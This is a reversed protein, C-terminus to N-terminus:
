RVHEQEGTGREKAAAREARLQDLEARLRTLESSGAGTGTGGRNGMSRDDCRNGGSMARMMLVMSLPCAALLLLPLAAALVDPAFVVVGLGAVALAALVKRNFCMKM